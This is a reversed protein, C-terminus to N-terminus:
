RVDLVDIAQHASPRTAVFARVLRMFGRGGARQLNSGFGSATLGVAIALVRFSIGWFSPSVSM